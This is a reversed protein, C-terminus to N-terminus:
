LIAHALHYLHLLDNRLYGLADQRTTQNDYAAAFNAGQIPDTKSKPQVSPTVGDQYLDFLHGANTLSLYEGTQYLLFESALDVFRGGYFRGNRVAVPVPIRLLRSRTIIFDMDFNQSSSGSGSWYVFKTVTNVPASVSAWFAKIIEEETGELFLIRGDCEVLGIVVIAGTLPSLAAEGLFKDRALAIKEPDKINGPPKWLLEARAPVGRTEIDFGVFPIDTKMAM